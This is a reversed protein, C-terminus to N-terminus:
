DCEIIRHKRILAREIHGLQLDPSDTRLALHNQPMEAQRAVEGQVQSHAPLTFKHFSCFFM